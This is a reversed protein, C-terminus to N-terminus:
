SSSTAVSTVQRLRQEQEWWAVMDMMDEGSSATVAATGDEGAGLQGEMKVQSLLEANAPYGQHHIVSTTNLSVATSALLPLASPSIVLQHATTPSSILSASFSPLFSASSTARLIPIDEVNTTEPSLSQESYGAPSLSSTTPHPRGSGLILETSCPQQYSDISMTVLHQTRLRHLQGDSTIYEGDRSVNPISTATSAFPEDVEYHQTAETTRSVPQANVLQIFTDTGRIRHYQPNFRLTTLTSSSSPPSTPDILSIDDEDDIYIPSEPVDTQVGDDEYTHYSHLLDTTSPNTSSNAPSPPSHVVLSTPSSVDSSDPSHSIQINSNPDNDDMSLLQQLSRIYDVAMRLTEVKSLKKNSRGGSQANASTYTSSVSPPIHQRLTAFGNNVQKVRNRERANRRAVAVPPPQHHNRPLNSGVGVAKKRVRSANNVAENSGSNVLVTGSSDTINDVPKTKKRLILIERRETHGSSVSNSVSSTSHQIIQLKNTHSSTVNNSFPVVGLTAM